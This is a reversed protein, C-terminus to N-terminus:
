SLLRAIGKVRVTHERVLALFNLRTVRIM